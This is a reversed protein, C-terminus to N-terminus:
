GNGGKKKLTYNIYIFFYRMKIKIVTKKNLGLGVRAELGESKPRLSPSKILAIKESSGSTYIM